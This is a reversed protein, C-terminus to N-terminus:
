GDGSPGAGERPGESGAPLLSDAYRPSAFHLDGSWESGEPWSDRPVFGLLERAPELDFLCRGENHSAVFVVRFGETEVRVAREFFDVADEHSLYIRTGAPVSEVRAAEELNRVFWGLRACIVSMGFRDSYMRALIEGTAKSVGYHDGPVMGDEVTIKEQQWDLGGVVRCSSGYIFRHVSCLRAVELMHQTGVINNPVLQQAFNDRDPVAALHVITDVGLAATRLAPLDLLSAQFDGPLLKSGDQDLGKVAHGAARLAAAVQYGV